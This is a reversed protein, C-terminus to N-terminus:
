LSAGLKAMSDTVFSDVTFEWEEVMMLGTKRAQSAFRAIWEQREAPTGYELSIGAYWLALRATRVRFLAEEDAATAQEAQDFLSSYISYQEPSIWSDKGDQPSGFISLEGGAQELNDHIRDIYELLFPAAQKYYGRLFDQMVAREDVQPDWMLKALMYGRLEHFEGGLERNSQSFLSKVNNEVFLRINPGLVRLNPFPSVLNRFQICYDWLFLSGCIEKWAKLEELSGKSRPDEAIPKGRNAEINCLMIHVNEAPRVKKPPKRTYWYALTSIIKDPFAEAVQNVFRLVSGMPSGEEENIKRCHECQCYADNDNQSVSWYKAEPNKAIEKRLNEITIRLVDPNSLCLQANKGVRVGDILSFYEPHDKYYVDPSVLNQFSHCWFGWGKHAEFPALKHKEAFAPDGYDRYYLERFTIPPTFEYAPFSITLNADRPIVECTSTYYRCGVVRELFDYVAFVAAEEDGAELIIDKDLIRYAFGGDGHDKKKFLFSYLPSPTPLIEFTCGTIKKLYDALIQPARRFGNAVIVTRAKGKAATVIPREHDM